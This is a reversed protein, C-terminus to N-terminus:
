SVTSATSLESPSRGDLKLKETEQVIEETRIKLQKELEELMSKGMKNKRMYAIKGMFQMERKFNDLLNAQRKRHDMVLDLFGNGGAERAERYYEEDSVQDFVMSFRTKRGQSDFVQVIKCRILLNSPEQGNRPFQQVRWYRVLTTSSCNFVAELLICLLMIQSTYIPVQNEAFRALWEESHIGFLAAYERGMRCSKRMSTNVDYEVCIWRGHGWFDDDLEGEKWVNEQEDGLWMGSIRGVSQKVELEQEIRPDYGDQLRKSLRARALNQISRIGEHIASKIGDPLIKYAQLFESVPFGVERALRLLTFHLGIAESAKKMLMLNEYNDVSIRVYNPTGQDRGQALILADLENKRQLEDSIALCWDDDPLPRKRNHHSVALPVEPPAIAGAFVPPEVHARQFDQNNVFQFDFFDVPQNRRDQPANFEGFPAHNKDDTTLEWMSFDLAEKNSSGQAYLQDEWMSM